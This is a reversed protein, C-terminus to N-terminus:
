PRWLTVTFGFFALAFSILLLNRVRNLRLRAMSSEVIGVLVVLGFMGALFVSMDIILNGTRMPLIIQVAIGAFVFFKVMSAYLMYALDVGSHELIMAEHIMTLELHTEPDDVPIRCNESILVIFFSAVVLLLAPSLFKWFVFIDAGIIGSLSINHSLLALTILNMFLALESLCSFFAERSSGMAEMSFGTDLSAAILFFRALALLYVVLLIDGSFQVPAKLAGFPIELSLALMAALVVIPAARFIWTTTSSYVNKKFFLKGLDFYTQLLPPGKRGAFIAKVRNIVGPLFPALLLVFAWHLLILFVIKLM